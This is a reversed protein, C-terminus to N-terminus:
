SRHFHWFENSGMEAIRAKIDVLLKETEIREGERMEGCDDISALLENLHEIERYLGSRSQRMVRRTM